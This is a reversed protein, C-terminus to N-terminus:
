RRPLERTRPIRKEGNAPGSWPYARPRILARRATSDSAARAAEFSERM